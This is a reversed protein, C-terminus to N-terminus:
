STTEWEMVLPKDIGPCHIFSAIVTNDEDLEFLIDKM